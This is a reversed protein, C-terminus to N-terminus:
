HVNAQTVRIVPKVELDRTRSNPQYKLEGNEYVTVTWNTNSIEVKDSKSKLVRESGHSGYFGDDNRVCIQKYNM